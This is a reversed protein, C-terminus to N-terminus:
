EGRPPGRYIVIIVVGFTSAYGGIATSLWPPMEHGRDALVLGGILGVAALVGLSVLGIRPIWPDRGSNGHAAMRGDEDNAEKLGWAGALRPARQSPVM